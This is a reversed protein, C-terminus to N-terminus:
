KELDIEGLDTTQGESVSVNEKVFDKYPEVADVMVTYVGPQINPIEFAGMNLNIRFTDKDSFAVARLAADPPVVKGKIAGGQLTFAFLGASLAAFAISAMMKNKM